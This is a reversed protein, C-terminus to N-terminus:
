NIKLNEGSFFHIFGIPPKYIQHKRQEDFLNQRNTSIKELVRISPSHVIFYEIQLSIEENVCNFRVTFSSDDQTELWFVKSKPDIRDGIPDEIERVEDKLIWISDNGKLFNDWKNWFDM